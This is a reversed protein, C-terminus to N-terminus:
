AFPAAASATLAMAGIHAAASRYALSSGRLHYAPQVYTCPLCGARWSGEASRAVAAPRHDFRAGEGQHASARVIIPARGTARWLQKKVPVRQGARKGWVLATFAQGPLVDAPVPVADISAYVPEDGAARCGTAAEM